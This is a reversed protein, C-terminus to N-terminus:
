FNALARLNILLLRRQMHVRENNVKVSVYDKKGPMMRSNEDLEYFKTVADIVEKELSPHSKPNSDALIGKEEATKKAVTIMHRTASPFHHQVKRFTWDKCFITLIKM